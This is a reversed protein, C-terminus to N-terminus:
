KGGHKNEMAILLALANNIHKTDTSDMDMDAFSRIYKYMMIMSKDFEKHLNWQFHKYVKSHTPSKMKLHIKIFRLLAYRIKRMSVDIIDQTNVKFVGNNIDLDQQYNMSLLERLAVNGNGDLPVVPGWMLQGDVDGDETISLKFIAKSPTFTAVIDVLEKV